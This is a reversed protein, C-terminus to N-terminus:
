GGTEGEAPWTVPLEDQEWVLGTQVRGLGPEWTLQGPGRPLRPRQSLLPGSRGLAFGGGAAAALAYILVVVPIQADGAWWLMATVGALAVLTLALMVLRAIMMIGAGLLGAVWGHRPRRIVVRSPATIVAPGSPDPGNVNGTMGNM